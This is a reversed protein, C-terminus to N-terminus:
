GGDVEVMQMMLGIDVQPMWIMKNGVMHSGRVKARRESSGSADNTSGRRGM